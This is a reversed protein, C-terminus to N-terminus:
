RPLQWVFGLDFHNPNRAIGFRLMVDRSHQYFRCRRNAGCDSRLRNRQGIQWNEGRKLQHHNGSDHVYAPALSTQARGCFEKAREACIDARSHKQPFSRAGKQLEKGAPTVHDAAHDRTSACICDAAGSGRIEEFANRQLISPACIQSASASARAGAEATSVASRRTTTSLKHIFGTDEAAGFSQKSKLM